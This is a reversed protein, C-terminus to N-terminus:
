CEAVHDLMLQVSKRGRFENIAPRYLVHVREPLPRGIWDSNFQIADYLQDGFESQLVLKLHKEKLVRQQAIRFIGDFAPEPFKQGWPGARNLEAVVPLCLEQESLDGDSYLVSQLDSEDLLRAAIDDFAARFREYFEARITMGAAMAHGGFKEILGPASKSIADLADRMHFGSISRASGKLFEVPKDPDDHEPAFVVVPRHLREKIRSALIGIVGQHWHQEYLCVGYQDAAEIAELSALQQEADRKMDEEILKRERNFKDLVTALEVAQSASTTLLCEIGVSMDDLRGAANLRPGLVFGMDSANLSKPKRGGLEILAQIGPRMRGARIRRLGQEVLIRNNHDLPVLDAVTGLAVLDLFDAMSPEALGQNQFWDQSRLHARLGSMVYFIVGVGAAHKSPFTCGAQNPNVIADAAPLEEGPLHHDTILVSLGADKAARVGQLSSIGNDVTVILDAGQSIAVEVIEPSLGYGYDFRNPVLYWCHVAGMARLASVALATSTAGDADFDGVIVIKKKQQIADTLLDVAGQLGKLQSLGQLDRLSLALESIDRIGRARYVRSLFAPMGELPATEPVARRIIKRKM